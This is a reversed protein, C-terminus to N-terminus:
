FYRASSDDDLKNSGVTEYVKMIFILRELKLVLKCKM